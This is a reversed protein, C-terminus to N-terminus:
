EVGRDRASDRDCRADRRSRPWPAITLYIKSSLDGSVRARFLPRALRSALFSSQRAAVHVIRHRHSQHFIGKPIVDGCRGPARRSPALRSFARRCFAVVVVVVVVVTGARTGYRRRRRQVGDAGRASRYACITHTHMHVHMHLICAGLVHM